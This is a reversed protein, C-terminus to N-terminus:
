PMVGQPEAAYETLGLLFAHVMYASLDVRVLSEVPPDGVGIQAKHVAFPALHFFQLEADRGSFGAAVLNARLSVVHEPEAIPFTLPEAAAIDHTAMYSNLSGLFSVSSDVFTRVAEPSMSVILLSRLSKGDLRRQAFFIRVFAGDTDIAVADAVYSRDPIPLKKLDVSIETM